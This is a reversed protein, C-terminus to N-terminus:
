HNDILQNNRHKENKLNMTVKKALAFIGLILIIILFYFYIFIFDFNFDLM